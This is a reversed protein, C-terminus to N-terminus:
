QQFKKLSALIKNQIEEMYVIINNSHEDKYSDFDGEDVNSAIHDLGFDVDSLNSLRIFNHVMITTAILQVYIVNRPKKRLDQQKAKWVGVIQEIIVVLFIM